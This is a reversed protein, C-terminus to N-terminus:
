DEYDALLSELRKGEPKLVLVYRGINWSVSAALAVGFVLLMQAMNRDSTKGVDHLQTVALLMPVMFVPLSMWFIRCNARAARNSALMAALTDRVPSGSAGGRRRMLVGTILMAALVIWCVALMGLGGWERGVDMAGNLVSRVAIATFLTMAAAPIVFLLLDARRRAKLTRMLEEMLFTQARADPTNAESRWAQELREFDM